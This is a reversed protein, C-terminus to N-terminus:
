ACSCVTGAPRSRISPFNIVLQGTRERDSAISFSVQYAIRQFIPTDLFPCMTWDTLSRGLRFSELRTAPSAGHRSLLVASGESLM